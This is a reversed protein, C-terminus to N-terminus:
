TLEQHNKLTYRGGAESIQFREAISVATMTQSLEIIKDRDKQTLKPNGTNDVIETQVGAVSLLRLETKNKCYNKERINQLHSEVTRKSINLKTAIDQNPYHILEFVKAECPTLILKQMSLIIFIVATL